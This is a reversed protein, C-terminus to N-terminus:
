GGARIRWDECSWPILWGRAILDCPGSALAWFRTKRRYCEGTALIAEHGRSQLGLALAVYPHLDGLSSWTTILIRLRTHNTRPATTSSASEVRSEPVVALNASSAGTSEADGQWWAMISARRATRGPESVLENQFDAHLILGQGSLDLSGFSELAQRTM